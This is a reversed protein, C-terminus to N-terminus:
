YWKQMYLYFSNSCSKSRNFCDSIKEYPNSQMEVFQTNWWLCFEDLHWHVIHVNVDSSHVGVKYGMFASSLSFQRNFSVILVSWTSRGGGERRGGGQGKNKLRFRALEAASMCIKRTSSALPSLDWGFLEWVTYSRRYYKNQGWLACLISFSRGEEAGNQPDGM